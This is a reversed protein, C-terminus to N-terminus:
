HQHALWAEEGNIVVFLGEYGEMRIRIPENLPAQSGDLPRYLRYPGAISLRPQIEAPDPSINAVFYVHRGELIHHTCLIRPDPVALAFDPTVAAQVAAPLSAAPVVRGSGGTGFIEAMIADSERHIGM